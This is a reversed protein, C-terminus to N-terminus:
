LEDLYPTLFLRRELGSLEGCDQQPISSMLTLM